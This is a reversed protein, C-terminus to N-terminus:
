RTGFIPSDDIIKILQIASATAGSTIVPNAEANGCSTRWSRAFPSQHSANSTAAGRNQFRAASMIRIRNRAIITRHFEFETGHNAALIIGSVRDSPSKAILIWEIHYQKRKREVEGWYDKSSMSFSTLFFIWYRKRNTTLLNESRPIAETFMVAEM